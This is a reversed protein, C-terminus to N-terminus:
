IKFYGQKFLRDPHGSWEAYRKSKRFARQIVVAMEEISVFINKNRSLYSWYIKDQNAKLLDMVSPNENKSLIEWRIKEPNAKLPTEQVMQRIDTINRDSFDDINDSEEIDYNINEDLEENFRVKKEIDDKVLGFETISSKKMKDHGVGGKDPPTGPHSARRDTTNDGCL